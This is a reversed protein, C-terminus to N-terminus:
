NGTYSQPVHSERSYEKLKARTELIIQWQREDGGEAESANKLTYWDRSYLRRQESGSLSDAAAQERLSYELHVLEAQLYLLNQANLAQFRRFLVLDPNMSMRWAIKAYGEM